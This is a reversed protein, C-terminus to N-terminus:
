AAAQGEVKELAERALTDLTKKRVGENEYIFTERQDDIFSSVKKKGERICLEGIAWITQGAMCAAGCDLLRLLDPIFDEVLERDVQGIRCVAWVFGQCSSEDARFKRLLAVIKSRKDPLNRAIEGLAEAVGWCSMTDDFAHYIRNWVRVVANSDDRALQGLRCAAKFRDEMDSSYLGAFLRRLQERDAQSLPPHDSREM